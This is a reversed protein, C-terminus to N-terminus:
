NSLKLEALKTYVIKDDGIFGDLRFNKKFIKLLLLFNQILKILIEANKKFTLM